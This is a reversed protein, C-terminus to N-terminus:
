KRYKLIAENAQEKTLSFESMLQEAVMDKAIKLKNCARILAMIGGMREKLDQEERLLYRM